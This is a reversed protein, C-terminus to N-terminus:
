KSGVEFSGDEKIYNSRLTNPDFLSNIKFSICSSTLNLNISSDIIYSPLGIEKSDVERSDVEKGSGEKVGVESSGVERSGVEFSGVEFSGVEFSGVEFSGIERSGVEFSGVEFSGVEFSGVEKIYNSRLTNPEFLINIKCSICPCTSDNKISM